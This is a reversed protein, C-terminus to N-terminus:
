RGGGPTLAALAERCRRGLAGEGARGGAKRYASLPRDDGGPCSQYRNNRRGVPDAGAPGIRARPSRRVGRKDLTTLYRALDRQQSRSLRRITKAAGSTRLKLISDGSEADLQLPQALGADFTAFGADGQSLAMALTTLHTLEVIRSLLAEEDSSVSASLM